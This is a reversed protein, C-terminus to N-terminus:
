FQHTKSWCQLFYFLFNSFLLLVAVIGFHKVFNLRIKSHPATACSIRSSLKKEPASHTKDPPRKGSASKMTKRNSELPAFTDNSDACDRSGSNSCRALTCGRKAVEGSMAAATQYSRKRPRTSRGSSAQWFRKEHNKLQIGFTCFHTRM